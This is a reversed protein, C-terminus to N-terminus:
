EVEAEVYMGPAVRPQEGTRADCNGRLEFTSTTGDGDLDGHAHAVFAAAGADDRDFAFSFSHAVGPPTARFHLARWTPTEWTETPDVAPKGRPVADPTLPAAKPFAEACPKGAGFAVANTGIVELGHVPEILRSSSWSRVFAPVAIALLSGALSIGIAVELATMGRARRRHIFSSARAPPV